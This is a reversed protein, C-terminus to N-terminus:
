FNFKGYFLLGTYGTKVSGKFDNLGNNEKYGTINLRFSNIGLGFGFNKWPNYEIRANFDLIKGRFSSIELYLVEISQKLLFKPTIAFNTRFGLVPLPAVFYMAEESLGLASTSFRIPM